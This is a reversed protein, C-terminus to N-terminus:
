NTTSTKGSKINTQGSTTSTQGSSIDTQGSTTSKTSETPRKIM